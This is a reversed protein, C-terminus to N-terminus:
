LCPAPSSGTVRKAIRSAIFPGWKTLNESSFIASHGDVSPFGATNAANINTVRKDTGVYGAHGLEGWCLDVLGLAAAIRAAETITDGANYYVDCWQVCAPLAFIQELAGNIFVVGNAKVGKLLLDYIIACGNSHGILVDSAEIYPAICGELMPNLVRTALALEYGYDPYAVPVPLYPILAEPPQDSGATHIGHVLHVRM